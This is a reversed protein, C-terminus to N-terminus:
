AKPFHVTVSNRLPWTPKAFSKNRVAVWLVSSQYLITLYLVPPCTCQRTYLNHIRLLVFCTCQSSNVRGVSSRVSLPGAASWDPRDGHYPCPPLIYSSQPLSCSLQDLQTFDPMQNLQCHLQVIAMSQCLAGIWWQFISGPPHFDWAGVGPDM